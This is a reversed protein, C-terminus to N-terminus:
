SPRSKARPAGQEVRRALPVTWSGTPAYGGDIWTFARIEAVKGSKLGAVNQDVGPMAPAGGVLAGELDAASLRAPGKVHSHYVAAVRGGERRLRRSLALHAGPDVVYAEGGEGAVNRVPVVSLGGRADAVVFGCVENGPDAEALAAVRAAIVAYDTV